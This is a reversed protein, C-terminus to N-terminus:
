FRSQLESTHEESRKNKGDDCCYFRIITVKITDWRYESHKLGGKDLSCSSYNSCIYEHFFFVFPSPAYAIYQFLCCCMYFVIIAIELWCDYWNDQHLWLWSRKRHITFYKEQPLQGYEYSLVQIRIHLLMQHN